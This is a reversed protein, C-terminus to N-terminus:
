KNQLDNLKVNSFNISKSLEHFNICHRNKNKFQIYFNKTFLQNKMNNKNKKTIKYSLEWFARRDFVSRIDFIPILDNQLKSLKKILYCYLGARFKKNKGIKKIKDLNNLIKKYDDINKPSITLDFNSYRTDAVTVVPVGLLTYEYGASGGFSIVSSIFRNLNNINYKDEILKINSSNKVIKDFISKTTIKTNYIKESPHSKIIWNVNDIKKIIKLTEIFWEIPTSYIGWDHTLLNDVFVNPLILINKQKNNLKLLECFKKKNKPTVLKKKPLNSSFVKEGFGIQNLSKDEKIFKEIKKELLSKFNKNLYNFLKSSFKMRHTNKNKFDNFCRISILNEKRAGFFAFVPIKKLLSSQFFIRNPIFQTEAMVLAKINKDFFIKQSQDYSQLSKSLALYFLYNHRQDPFEKLYNRIAFEYAAKGLEIKKYKFKILKNLLKKESLLNISKLYYFFRSLINGNSVEIFKNILFSKAIFKSLLDYKNIIVKCDYNSFHRLNSAVICQIIAHMPHSSLTLDILIIKSNKKKNLKWILKNELLYNKINKDRFTYITKNFFFYVIFKIISVEKIFNILFIYKRRILKIEVFFFKLILFVKAM